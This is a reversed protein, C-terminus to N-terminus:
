QAKAAEIVAALDKGDVPGTFTKALSGDPAILYTVPLGRPTPFDAPPHDTDVQALPYVVPHKRVFEDLESREIEDWALGIATVNAHAAVYASLDPMEKICPSCWTAWYNVIVWKGRQAALNFTQGDLTTITLQPRAAPAAVACTALLTAGLLLCRLLTKM